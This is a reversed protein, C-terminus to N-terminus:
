SIKITLIGEPYGNSSEYYKCDAGQFTSNVGSQLPFNFGGMTAGSISMSRPIIFYVHFPGPAAVSVYKDVNVNYTGAPSTKVYTDEQDPSVGQADTWDVGCVAFMVGANATATKVLEGIKFEATFVNILNTTSSDFLATASLTTANDSTAIVEDGRKITITAEVSCSAVLRVVIHEETSSADMNATLSVKIADGLVIANIQEQTLGQTDDMIDVAGAVFPDDKSICKMRKPIATYKKEGM